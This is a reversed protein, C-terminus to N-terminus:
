VGPLADGFEVIEAERLPEMGYVGGADVIAHVQDLDRVQYFFADCANHVHPPNKKSVDYKRRAEGDGEAPKATQFVSPLDPFGSGFPTPPAMKEIRADISMRSSWEVGNRVLEERDPTKVWDVFIGYEALVDYTSQGANQHSGYKDGRLDGLPFQSVFDMMEMAAPPYDFADLFTKGALKGYIIRNRTMQKSSWHKMFPVWYEPHPNISMWYGVQAIRISKPCFRGCIWSGANKMSQGPDFGELTINTGPTDRFPIVLNRSDLSSFLVDGQAAMWDMQLERAIGIKDFLMIACMREFWPSTMDHYQVRQVTNCTSCEHDTGAHGPGPQTKHANREKCVRCIWEAGAMYPAIDSWHCRIRHVVETGTTTREPHLLKYFFSGTGGTEPITGWAFQCKAATSSAKWASAALGTQRKDYQGIEDMMVFNVSFSRGFSDSPIDGVLYNGEAEQFMRLGHIMWAPRTIKGTVDQSSLLGSATMGDVGKSTKADKNFRLEPICTVMSDLFMRLRGFLTEPTRQGKGGGDVLKEEYTTIVGAGESRFLWAWLALWMFITTFAVQRSKVAVLASETPDDLMEPFKNILERQKPYPIIPVMNAPLGLNKPIHGAGFRGKRDPAWAVDEIFDLPSKSWRHLTQILLTARKNAQEEADPANRDVNRLDFAAYLKARKLSVQVVLQNLLSQTRKYAADNDRM